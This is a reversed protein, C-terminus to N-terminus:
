SWKNLAIQVLTLLVFLAGSAYALRLNIKQIKVDLNNLATPIHNEVARKVFKMDAELTALREIEEVTM